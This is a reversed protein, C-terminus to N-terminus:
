HESKTKDMRHTQVFTYHCIAMVIIDYLTKESGKFGETSQRNMEGGGGRAVM